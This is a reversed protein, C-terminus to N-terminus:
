FLLINDNNTLNSSEWSRVAMGMSKRVRQMAKSGYKKVLKKKYNFYKKRLAKYKKYLPDNHEKAIQIAASSVKMKAKRRKTMRVLSTSKTAM